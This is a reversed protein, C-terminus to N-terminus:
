LSPAEWFDRLEYQSTDEIRIDQAASPGHSRHILERLRASEAEKWSAIVRTVRAHCDGGRSRLYTLAEQDSVGVPYDARHALWSEAQALRPDGKFAPVGRDDQNPGHAM